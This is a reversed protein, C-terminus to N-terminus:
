WLKSLLLLSMGDKCDQVFSESCDLYEQPIIVADTCKDASVIEPLDTSGARSDFLTRFKEQCVIFEVLSCRLQNFLVVVPYKELLNVMESDLFMLDSCVVEEHLTSSTAKLPLYSSSRPCYIPYFEGNAVFEYGLISVKGRICRAMAKGRLVVECDHKM